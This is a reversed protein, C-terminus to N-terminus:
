QVQSARAGPCRSLDDNLFPDALLVKLDVTSHGIWRGTEVM